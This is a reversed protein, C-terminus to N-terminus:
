HVLCPYMEKFNVASRELMTQNGHCGAKQWEATAPGLSQPSLDHGSRGVVSQHFICRVRSRLYSQVGTHVPAVSTDGTFLLLLIIQATM